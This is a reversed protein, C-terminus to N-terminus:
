GAFSSPQVMSNQAACNAIRKSLQGLDPEGVVMLDIDSGAIESGSAASGFVFAQEIMGLSRLNKRLMDGLGTTKLILRRVEPYVPSARNAAYYKVLGEEQETLLGANALRNLELHVSRPQAKLLRQLQRGYFREDPHTFFHTLLKVRTKSSILAHLIDAM